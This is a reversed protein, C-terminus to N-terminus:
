CDPQHKASSPTPKRKLMTIFTMILRMVINNQQILWYNVRALEFKGVFNCM